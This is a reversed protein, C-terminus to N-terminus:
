LTWDRVQGSLNERIKINETNNEFLHNMLYVRIVKFFFLMLLPLCLRFFCSKMQYDSAGKIVMKYVFLGKLAATLSM